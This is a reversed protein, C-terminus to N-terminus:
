RIKELRNCNSAFRHFLSEQKQQISEKHLSEALLSTENFLFHFLELSLVFKFNCIRNLLGLAMIARDSDGAVSTSSLEELTTLIASFQKKIADIAAFQCTWRTDIIQKLEIAVEGPHLVAQMAFCKAHPIASSMYVYLSQILEFFDRAIPEKKCVDVLM